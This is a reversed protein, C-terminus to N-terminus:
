ELGLNMRKILKLVRLQRTKWKFKTRKLESKSQVNYIAQISIEEEIKEISYLLFVEDCGKEYM